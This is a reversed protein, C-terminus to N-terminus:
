PYNTPHPELVIDYRNGPAPVTITLGSDEPDYYKDQVLRLRRMGIPDTPDPKTAGGVYVKYEGPPVGDKTGVSGMRYSGDEKIEGSSQFTETTFIVVGFTVPNGDSFTLPM